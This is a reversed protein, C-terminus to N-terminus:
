GPRRVPTPAARAVRCLFEELASICARDRYVLYKNEAMRRKLSQLWPVDIALRVAAAVYDDITEAITETVGMMQLIAMTHRGRMLSGPMTVIPLDHTLCELTTNGGSWGLSDLVVNCQGVAAVFRDTDLRPAVVCYERADLGYASFARDLRERFRDTVHPGFAIFFFQCDGAERAIRAFVQDYQPLYKFLSQGSWFVTATSRLGLDERTLPVAAFNQPEYYISLNPLCILQETYHAQADPPEMLASSLFYDLTPYGTTNPHGWSVCQVPALRLAALQAAGGDMGVEPYLLVDPEDALITDRWREISLPGEVFRDCLKAAEETMKDRNTRPYYGFVEFKRRDLQTLWGNIILKWVTHYHFIGSVIGVRIKGAPRPRAPPPPPVPYREAM